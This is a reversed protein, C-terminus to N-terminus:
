RPESAVRERLRDVQAPGEVVGWEISTTLVEGPQLHKLTGREREAPRGEVHCNAPELGLVNIGAGQHKWQVLYPLAAREYRLYFALVTGTMVHDNVLAVCVEDSDGAPEHYFVEETAGSKPADFARLGDLATGPDRPESRCPPLLLSAGESVLPFGLNFHYLVMLPVPGSGANEIQDRIRVASAGLSTEISRRLELKQGHAATERVTGSAELVYEDDDWRASAAVDTAPTNSIRGHLGLEEDGDVAPSGVQTLGCTVMLGGGFSRLWGTGRPEFFSPAVWGTPSRWALPVGRYDAGAFDMGRDPLVAFSLGSGTRFSLQRMGRGPGSALEEESVSALQSIDGVQELLQARTWRRGFLEPM